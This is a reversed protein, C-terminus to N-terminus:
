YSAIYVLNCPTCDTNFETKCNLMHFSKVSFLLKLVTLTNIGKHIICCKGVCKRVVKECVRVCARVWVRM